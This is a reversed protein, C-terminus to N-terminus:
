LLSPPVDRPVLAVTIGGLYAQLLEGSTKNFQRITTEESVGTRSSIPGYEDLKLMDAVDFGDERFM